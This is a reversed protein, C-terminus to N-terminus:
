ERSPPFGSLVVSSERRRPFSPVPPSGFHGPLAGNKYYPATSAFVCNAPLQSLIIRRYLKMCRRTVRSDCLQRNAVRNSCIVSGFDGGQRFTQVGAQDDDPWFCREGSTEGISEAFASAPNKSRRRGGGPNL